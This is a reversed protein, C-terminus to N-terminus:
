SDYYLKIVELAKDPVRNEEFTLRLQHHITDMLTDCRSKWENADRVECVGTKSYTFSSPHSVGDCKYKDPNFRIMVIPRGGVNKSLEMTRENDRMKNYSRHQEEDIEVILVHTLLDFYVDPRRRSGCATRDVARDFVPPYRAAFSQDLNKKILDVVTQEKVKRVIDIMGDAKHTACRTPKGGAFGFAPNTNCGPEECRKVGRMQVMGDAKHTACRTPKGGAFGFAPNTNCGPEECCKPFGDYCMTCYDNNRVVASLCRESVCFKSVNLMGDVRHVKCHSRLQFTAKGGAGEVAFLPANRCGPETCHRTYRGSGTKYTVNDLKTDRIGVEGETCSTSISQTASPPRLAAAASESWDAVVNIGAPKHIGFQTPVNTIRPWKKYDLHADCRAPMGGFFRFTPITNCGPVQCCLVM